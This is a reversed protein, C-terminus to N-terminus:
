MVSYWWAYVSYCWHSGEGKLWHIVVM